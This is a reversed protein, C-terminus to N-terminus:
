FLLMGQGLDMGSPRFAFPRGPWLGDRIAPCARAGLDMGSPRSGFARGPSLGDRVALCARAWTWAQRGLFLPVGQSHAHHLRPESIEATTLSAQRGLIVPVSQLLVNFM